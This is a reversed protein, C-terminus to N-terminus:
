VQVVICFFLSLSFCIFDNFSNFLFNSVRQVFHDESFSLELYIHFRLPGVSDSHTTFYIASSETATTIVVALINISTLVIVSASLYRWDSCYLLAMMTVSEILVRCFILFLKICVPTWDDVWAFKISESPNETRAVSANLIVLSCDIKYASGISLLRVMSGGITM